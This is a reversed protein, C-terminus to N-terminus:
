PTMTLCRLLNALDGADISQIQRCPLATLSRYIGTHTVICVWCQMGQHASTPCIRYSYPRGVVILNYSIPNTGLGPFNMEGNGAPDHFEARMTSLNLSGM